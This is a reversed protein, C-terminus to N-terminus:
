SQSTLLQNDTEETLSFVRDSKQMLTNRIDANNWGNSSFSLGKSQSSALPMEMSQREQKRMSYLSDLFAVSMSINPQQSWAHIRSPCPLGHCRAWTSTTCRRTKTGQFSYWKSSSQVKTWRQICNLSCLRSSVAPPVITCVLTSWWYKQTRKSQSDSQPRSEEQRLCVMRSFRTALREWFPWSVRTLAQMRPQSSHM